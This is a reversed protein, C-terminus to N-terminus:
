RRIENRVFAAPRRVGTGIGDPDLCSCSLRIRCIRAFTGIHVVRRAPDM